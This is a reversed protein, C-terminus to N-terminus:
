QGGDAACVTNLVQELINWKVMGSVAHIITIEFINGKTICIDLVLHMHHM